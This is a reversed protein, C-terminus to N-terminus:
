KAKEQYWQRWENIVSYYDLDILPPYDKEVYWEYEPSWPDESLNNLFRWVEEATIESSPEKIETTKKKTETYEYIVDEGDEYEKLPM